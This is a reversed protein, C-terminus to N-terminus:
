CVTGISRVSNSPQLSPRTRAMGPRLSTQASDHIVQLNSVGSVVPVWSSTGQKRFLTENARAIRQIAM